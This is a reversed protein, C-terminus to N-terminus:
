MQSFMDHLTVLTQGSKKVTVTVRKRTTTSASVGNNADLFAVAVDRSFGTYGTMAAGAPYQISSEVYGNFDDVDDFTTKNTANEGADVGLTSSISGNTNEDWRRGHIEEMLSMALYMARTVNVSKDASRNATTYLSALTVAVMGIIVMSLNVEVLTM